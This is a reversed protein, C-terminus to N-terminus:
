WYGCAICARARVRLGQHDGQLQQPVDGRAPGDGVHLLNELGEGRRAQLHQLLGVVDHEEGGDHAEDLVPEQVLREKGCGRGEAVLNTRPTDRTHENTRENTRAHTCTHGKRTARMTYFRRLCNKRCSFLILPPENKKKKKASRHIANKKKAVVTRNTCVTARM